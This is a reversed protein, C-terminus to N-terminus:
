DLTILNLLEKETYADFKIAFPNEDDWKFISLVSTLEDYFHEGDIVEVGRDTTVENAPERIVDFTFQIKYEKNYGSIEILYINEAITSDFTKSISTKVGDRAVLNILELCDITTGEPHKKITYDGIQSQFRGKYSEYNWGYDSCANKFSSHISFGDGNSVITKFRTAM